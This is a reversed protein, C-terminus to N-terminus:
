WYVFDNLNQLDKPNYFIGTGASATEMTKLEEFCFDELQAVEQKQNSIANPLWYLWPPYSVTASSWSPFYNTFCKVIKPFISVKATSIFIYYISIKNIHLLLFIALSRVLSWCFLSLFEGLIIVGNYTHKKGWKTLIRKICISSVAHM